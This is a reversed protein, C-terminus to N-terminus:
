CFYGKQLLNPTVKRQKRHITKGQFHQIKPAKPLVLPGMSDQTGRRHTRTERRHTRSPRILLARGDQVKKMTLPLFNRNKPPKHLCDLGICRGYAVGLIQNKQWDFGEGFADVQAQSFFPILKDNVAQLNNFTAYEQANMLVLKKRLTQNSYSTEFDVKTKGSKGQKTTILVVGNVGRSGYIATASADKLIEISEIDANNLMTPNSGSIPFGDVVVLPEQNAFLTSLGRIQFFPNGEEDM